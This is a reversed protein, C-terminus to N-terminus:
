RIYEKIRGLIEEGVSNLSFKALAKERCRKKILANEQPNELIYKIKDAMSGIDGRGYLYGDKGDEIIDDIGPYITSIVPLGSAFAELIVHPLGEDCLTPFVFIDALNYIGPLADHEVRGLLKVRNGLLGDHEAIDSIRSRINGDGVLVLKLNSYKTLLRRFGEVLDLVGKERDLRGVNLIVRDDEALGYKSLAAPDKGRVDFKETDIGNYIVSVAKGPYKRSFYEKIDSSKAFIAALRPYFKEDIFFYNFVKYALSLPLKLNFGKRFTTRIEKPFFGPCFSFVPLPHEKDIGFKFYAYAAVSESLIIDFKEDALLRKLMMGSEKWWGGYYKGQLTRKLYITRVGGAREEEKGEPHATTVVTVSSTKALFDVTTRAHQQMGGSAHVPLVRTLFLINM